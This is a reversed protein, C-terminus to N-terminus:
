VLFISCYELHSVLTWVNHTWSCKLTWNLKSTFDWGAVKIGVNSLWVQFDNANWTMQEITKIQECRDWLPLCFHIDTCFSQDLDIGHRNLYVGMTIFTQWHSLTSAHLVYYATELPIDYVPYRAFSWNLLITFVFVGKKLFLPLFGEGNQTESPQLRFNNNWRVTPSPWCAFEVRGQECSGRPFTRAVLYINGIPNQDATHVFPFCSCFCLGSADHTTNVMAFSQIELWYVLPPSLHRTTNCQGQRLEVKFHACLVERSVFTCTTMTCFYWWLVQIWNELFEHVNAHGTFNCTKAQSTSGRVRTHLETDSRRSCKLRCAGWSPCRNNFFRAWCCNVGFTSFFESGIRANCGGSSISRGDANWCCILQAIWFSFCLTTGSEHICSHNVRLRHREHWRADAAGSCQLCRGWLVVRCSTFGRSLGSMCFCLSWNSPVMNRTRNAWASSIFLGVDPGCVLPEEREESPTKPVHRLRKEWQGARVM